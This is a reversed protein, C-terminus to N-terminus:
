IPLIDRLNRSRDITGPCIRIRGRLLFIWGHRPCVPWPSTPCGWLGWYNVLTSWSWPLWCRVQPSCFLNSEIPLEILFCLNFKLIKSYERKQFSQEWFNLNYRYQPGSLFSLQLHHPRVQQHDHYPLLFLRLLRCGPSSQASSRAWTSQHLHRSIGWGRDGANSERSTIFCIHDSSIDWPESFM